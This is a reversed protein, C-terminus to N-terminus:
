KRFIIKLPGLNIISDMAIEAVRCDDVACNRPVRRVAVATDVTVRAAGGDGVAGDRRIRRAFFAAPEVAVGAVRRDRVANQPVVRRLLDM